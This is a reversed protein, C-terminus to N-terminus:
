EHKLFLVCKVSLIYVINIIPFRDFNQYGMMFQCFYKTVWYCLALFISVGGFIM